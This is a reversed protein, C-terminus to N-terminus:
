VAMFARCALGIFLLGSVRNLWLVGNPSSLHHSVKQIVLSVWIFWIADVVWPTLLLVSSTQWSLNESDIFQSFLATFFIASKPNLIAIAFGQIASKYLPIQSQPEASIEIKEKKSMLAKIGLYALFGAGGYVIFQYVEPSAILLASIGLITALAYLAIGTAHSIAAVIGHRPSYSIAHKVILIFSPGPSVAGLVCIFLFPLWDTLTM